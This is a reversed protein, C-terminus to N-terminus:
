HMDGEDFRDSLVYRGPIAPGPGAWEVQNDIFIIFVEPPEYTAEFIDPKCPYVEGGVGKIIWDGIDARLDGELTVIRLHDPYFEARRNTCFKDLELRNESSGDFQIAEIIVPKKRFQM